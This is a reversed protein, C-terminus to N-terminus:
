ASTDRLFDSYLDLNHVALHVAKSARHADERQARQRRLRRALNSASKRAWVKGPSEKVSEREPWRGRLDGTTMM